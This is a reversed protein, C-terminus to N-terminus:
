LYDEVSQFLKHLFSGNPPLVEQGSDRGRAASWWHYAYSNKTLELCYDLYEPDYALRYEQHNIAHFLKTDQNFLFDYNATKKIQHHYQPLNLFSMIALPGTYSYFKNSYSKAFDFIFRKMNKLFFRDNVKLVTAHLEEDESKALIVCHAKSLESFYKQDKLCFVDLDFWWGPTKYLLEFRFLDSFLPYIKKNEPMDEPTEFRYKGIWDKSLIKNADMVNVWAPATLNEDYTWLNIIFGNKYFSAMSSKQYISLDGDWYFNAIEKNKM